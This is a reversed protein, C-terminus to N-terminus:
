EDGRRTPLQIPPTTAVTILAAVTLGAFVLWIGQYSGWNDYVWGPLSAGIVNGLAMVGIVFGHITGFRTRGFHERVLAVRMIM